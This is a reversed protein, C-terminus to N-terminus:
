DSERNVEVLSDRWLHRISEPVYGIGINCGRPRWCIDGKTPKDGYWIAVGDEDFAAWRAWEPAFEVPPHWIPEIDHLNCVHAPFMEFGHTGGAIWCSVTKQTGNWSYLNTEVVLEPGGPIKYLKKM